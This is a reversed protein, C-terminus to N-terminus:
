DRAYIYQNFLEILGKVRPVQDDNDYDLNATGDLVLFHGENNSVRYQQPDPDNSQFM